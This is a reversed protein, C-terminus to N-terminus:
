VRLHGAVDRNKGGKRGFSLKTPIAGTGFGSTGLPRDAKAKSPSFMRNIAAGISAVRSRRKNGTDSNEDELLIDDANLGRGKLAGEEARQDVNDSMQLAAAVRDREKRHRALMQKAEDVTGTFRSASRKLMAPVLQALSGYKSGGAGATARSQEAASKHADLELQSMIESQEELAHATSVGLEMLLTTTHTPKWLSTNAAAALDGMQTTLLSYCTTLLLYCTAPLLYCTALLWYYTTLLLYCTALLLYCTALLWYGTTLLLYRTALLSYCTTLLLYCTALLLYRPAAAQMRLLELAQRSAHVEARLVANEWMMSAQEGREDSPMGALM